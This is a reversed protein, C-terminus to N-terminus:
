FLLFELINSVHNINKFRRQYFNIQVNLKQSNKLLINLSEDSYNLYRRKM